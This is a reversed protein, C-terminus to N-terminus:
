RCNLISNLISFITNLFTKHLLHKHFMNAIICTRYNVQLYHTSLPISFEMVAAYDLNQKSRWRVRDLSDKFTRKLDLTNFIYDTNPACIM